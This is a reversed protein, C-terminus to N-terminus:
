PNTTGFYAGQSNDCSVLVVCGYNAECEVSEWAPM